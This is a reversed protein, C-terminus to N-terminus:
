NHKYDYYNHRYIPKDVQTHISIAYTKIAKNVCVLELTLSIHWELQLKHDYPGSLRGESDALLDRSTVM